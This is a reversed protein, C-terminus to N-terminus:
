NIINLIRNGMNSRTELNENGMPECRRNNQVLNHRAQM